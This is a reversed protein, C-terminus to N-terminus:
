KRTNESTFDAHNKLQLTGLRHKEAFRALNENRAKANSDGSMNAAHIRIDVAIHPDRALTFNGRTVRMYWDWDWYYPLSEDFTGLTDHLNRHYCVASILITNDRELSKPTADLAFKRPTAEGPFRMIGDAFTFHASTALLHSARALHSEDIWIDDDDLFAVLHGTANRVGTNRAPVHGAQRNDIIRIRPDAFNIALPNGDNVVLLEFDKATQTIVSAVAERLYHERNRTPIIVSFLPM